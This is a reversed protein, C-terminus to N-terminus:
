CGLGDEEEEEEAAPAPAKKPAPTQSNKSEEKTTSAPTARSQCQSLIVEEYTKYALKNDPDVKIAMKAFKKAKKIDGSKLAEKANKTYKACLEQNAKLIDEHSTSLAVLVGAAVILMLGVASVIKNM